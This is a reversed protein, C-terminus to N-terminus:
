FSVEKIKAPILDILYAVYGFECCLSVNDYSKILNGADSQFNLPFKYM